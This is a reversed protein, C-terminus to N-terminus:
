KLRKNIEILQQKITAVDEIYKKELKDLEEANKVIKGEQEDNVDNTNALASQFQSWGMAVTVIFAIIFWYDKLFRLANGNKVQEHPATM